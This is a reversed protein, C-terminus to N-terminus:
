FPRLLLVNVVMTRVQVQKIKILRGINISISLLKVLGWTFRRQTGEWIAIDDIKRDGTKDNEIGQMAAKGSFTM